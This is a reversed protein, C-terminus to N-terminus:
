SRDTVCVCLHDSEETYLIRSLSMPITRFVQALRDVITSDGPSPTVLEITYPGDVNRMRVETSSQETTRAIRAGAHPLLERITAM